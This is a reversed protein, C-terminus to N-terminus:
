ETATKSSFPTELGVERRVRRYIQTIPVTLGVSELTITDEAYYFEAQWDTRRRFLRLAPTDQSVVVYELLSSIQTYNDFKEKLDVRKTNPSLIEVILIPNTRYYPDDTNDGCAAMIDPYYAFPKHDRTQGIVKMDSQWVRCHDPLHINIQACFDSAITNHAESAGAMAYIEGDLYESRTEVDREGALYDDFPIFNHKLAYGM